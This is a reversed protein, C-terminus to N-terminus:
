RENIQYQTKVKNFYIRSFKELKNNKEIQILRELEKEKDISKRVVRRDVVKLIIFNDKVKIVNSYENNKLAIINEYIKKSLADENVWGIKGGFKSSESLSYINATNDFGIESISKRIKTISDEIKEDKTKKFIIESLFFETKEKDKIDGLKKVLKEKNILVQDKYKDFILENWFLEIKIKYKVEDLTHTNNKLLSNNFDNTNKYDLRTILNKLYEDVFPNEDNLNIFKSIEKKKIIQKILSEKALIIMKKEEFNKLNPSLVQLYRSEKIVDFNTIIEDDVSAIIKFNISTANVLTLQIILFFNVIFFRKIM